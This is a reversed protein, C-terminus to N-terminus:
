AVYLVTFNSSRQFDEWRITIVGDDSKIAGPANDTLKGSNNRDTGNPSALEIWKQGRVDTFLRRVVYSMDGMVGMSNATYSTARFSYAIAIGGRELKTKLTAFDARSPSQTSVWRGTIQRISDAPDYLKNKSRSNLADWEANSYYRKPDIGFSILRARNILILAFNPETDKVPMPDNDTWTGDFAVRITRKDGKLTVDYVGKSIVKIAAKIDAPTLAALGAMYGPSDLEGKRIIAKGPEIAQDTYPRWLDLETTYTDFNKAADRAGMGFGHGDIDDAGQGGSLTDRGEGGSLSDDGTEGYLKDDGPDGTIWDNGAGGWIQDNGEGGVLWDKGAAGMLTDNGQDGYITDSEMGGYVRDDGTGGFVMTPVRLSAVNITDDGGKGRVVVQKVRSADVSRLTSTGYRISEGDVTITKGEQRVLISEGRDTGDIILNSGLLSVVAPVERGELANVSLVPRRTKGINGM